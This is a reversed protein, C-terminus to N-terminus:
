EEDDEVEGVNLEIDIDRRVTDAVILGFKEAQELVEPTYDINLSSVFDDLKDSESLMILFDKKSFAKKKGTDKNRLQLKKSVSEKLTSTYMESSHVGGKEITVEKIKKKLGKSKSAFLAEQTIMDDLNDDTYDREICTDLFPCEVCHSGAKPFPAEESELIVKIQNTSSDLISEYDMAEEYKFYKEWYDGSRGSVRAFVIPLKYEKAALYAYILAEDDVEKSIKFGTKYDIIKVYEGIFEDDCYLVLDFIGIINNKSPLTASVRKEIFMIESDKTLRDLDIALAMERAENLISPSYPLSPKYAKSMRKSVEQAFYEHSAKGVSLARGSAEIFDRKLRWTWLPCLEFKGMLSKSFNNISVVKPTNDFDMKKM